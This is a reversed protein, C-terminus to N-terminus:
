CKVNSFYVDRVLYLVYNLLFFKIQRTEKKRMCLVISIKHSITGFCTYGVIRNKYLIFTQDVGQCSLIFRHSPTDSPKKKREQINKYEVPILTSFIIIIPHNSYPENLRINSNIDSKSMCFPEREAIVQPRKNSLYFIIFELIISNFNILKPRLFSRFTRKM